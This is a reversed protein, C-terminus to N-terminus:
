SQLKKTKREEQRGRGEETRDERKEKRRERKVFGGCLPKTGVKRGGEQERIYM